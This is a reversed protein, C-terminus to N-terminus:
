PDTTPVEPPRRAPPSEGPWARVAGRDLTEQARLIRIEERLEAIERAVAREDHDQGGDGHLSPMACTGKRMPRVCCLYVAVVAAMLIVAAVAVSM